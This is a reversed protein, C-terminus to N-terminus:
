LPTIILDTYFYKHCAMNDFWISDVVRRYPKWSVILSINAVTDVVGGRIINM